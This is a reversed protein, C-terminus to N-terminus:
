KGKRASSRVASTDSTPSSPQLSHSIPVLGPYYGVSVRPVAALLGREWRGVNGRRRGRRERRGGRQSPGCPSDCPTILEHKREGGGERERGRGRM